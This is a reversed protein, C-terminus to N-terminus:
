SPDWVSRQGALLNRGVKEVDSNESKMTGFLGVVRLPIGHERLLQIDVQARERTLKMMESALETSSLAAM